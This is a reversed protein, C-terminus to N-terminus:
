LRRPKAAKRVQGRPGRPARPTRRLRQRQRQRARRPDLRSLSFSLSLSGLSVHTPVLQMNLEHPAKNSLPVSCSHLLLVTFTTLLSQGLPVHLICPLQLNYAKYHPARNSLPVSCSFLLLATFRISTPVSGTLAESRILGPPHTLNLILLKPTCCDEFAPRMLNRLKLRRGVPCVRARPYPRVSKGKPQTSSSLSRACVHAFAVFPPHALRSAQLLPFSLASAVPGLETRTLESGPQQSQERRPLKSSRGLGFAPLFFGSTAEQLLPQGGKSRSGPM